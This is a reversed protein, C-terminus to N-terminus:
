IWFRVLGVGGVFKDDEDDEEDDDLSVSKISESEDSGVWSVDEEM